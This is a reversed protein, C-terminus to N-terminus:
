SVNAIMKKPLMILWRIKARDTQSILWCCKERV